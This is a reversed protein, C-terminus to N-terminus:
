LSCTCTGAHHSLLGAVWESVGSEESVAPQSSVQQVKEVIGSIGNTVAAMQKGVADESAGVLEM